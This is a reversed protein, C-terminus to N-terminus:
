QRKGRACGLGLVVERHVSADRAASATRWRGRKTAVSVQPIGKNKWERKLEQAGRVTEFVEWIVRTAVGRGSGPTPSRELRAIARRLHPM